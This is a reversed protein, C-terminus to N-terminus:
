ISFCNLVTGSVAPEGVSTCTNKEIV